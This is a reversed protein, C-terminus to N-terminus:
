FQPAKTGGKVKFNMKNKGPSRNLVLHVQVIERKVFRPLFHFLERTALPEGFHISDILYSLILQFLLTWCGEKRM